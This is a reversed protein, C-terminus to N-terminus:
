KIYVRGLIGCDNGRVDFVVGVCNQEDLKIGKLPIAIDGGNKYEAVFDGNIHVKCSGLVNEIYLTKNEEVFLFNGKVTGYGNNGSYILNKGYGVPSPIWAYHYGTLEEKTPYEDHLDSVFFAQLYMINESSDLYQEDSGCATVTAECTLNDGKISLTVDGAELVGFGAQFCGNFFAIKNGKQNYHCSCDGNSLALLTGNKDVSVNVEGCYDPVVVGNKDVAYVDAIVCDSTGTKLSDKSLVIKYACVEGATKITDSVAAKGNIYGVAKLEGPVFKVKHIPNKYRNHAFREIEKGNLFLAIEDCNSYCIVNVEDGESYNWHPTVKLEPKSSWLARHWYYNDKPFGCLDMAGFNSTVSPWYFPGSEGLYDFGTWYFGGAVFNRKEIYEWTEGPDASWPFLNEYLVNGFRAVRGTEKNTKEIGRTSLYSGTESGFIPMNPFLKHFDDYGYQMYNFGMVDVVKMIGETQFPGNCGATIPRTGDLKKVLEAMSTAIKRGSVSGQIPEENLISWMIVCPHNRDRKVFRYLDSMETKSSSFHRTENMVVFGLRDCVDYFEPAKPNHSTRVANCGMSKLLNMRYDYVSDPLAVGFGGHDHHLCVGKLKLPKGNIFCGENADFRIERIGFTVEKEDVASGNKFLTVKATYLNPNETDWLLPDSVNLNLTNDGIVAKCEASLGLAEIEAKVALEDAAEGEVTACINIDWNNDKVCKTSVFIGDDEFHTVDTIILHTHRYLGGGEYWWGEKIFNSCRVSIVNTRGKEILDSVDCIVPVYSCNNSIIHVSNFYVDSDIAIGDFKIFVKKNVADDDLTFTKRYWVTDSPKNGCITGVNNEEAFDEFSCWDHPLEVSKWEKDDFFLGAPGSMVGTKHRHASTGFYDSMETKQISSEKCFKWGKDFNYKKRM